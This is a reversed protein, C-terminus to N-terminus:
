DDRKTRLTVLEEGCRRAARREELHLRQTGYCSFVFGEFGLDRCRMYHAGGVMHFYIMSQSKVYLSWM